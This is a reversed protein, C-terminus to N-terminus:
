IYKHYAPNNGINYILYDFKNFSVNDKGHVLVPFDKISEETIIYDDIYLTIDFIKSLAKVLVVSYDSIGSKKPPFPSAYLLSPKKDM